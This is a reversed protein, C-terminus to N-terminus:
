VESTGPYETNNSSCNSSISFYLGFIWRAYQFPYINRMKAEKLWCFSDIQRSVLQGRNRSPRAGGFCPMVGVLVPPGM